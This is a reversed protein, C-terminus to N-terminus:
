GGKGRTQDERGEFVGRMVSSLKLYDIGKSGKKRLLFSSGGRLDREERRSVGKKPEDPGTSIV